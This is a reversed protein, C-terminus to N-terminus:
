EDDVGLAVALRYAVEDHSTIDDVEIELSFLKPLDAVPMNIPTGSDDSPRWIIVSVGNNAEHHEEIILDYGLENILKNVNVTM